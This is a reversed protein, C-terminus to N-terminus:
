SGNALQIITRGSPPLAATREQNRVAITKAAKDNNSNKNKNNHQIWGSSHDSSSRVGLADGQKAGLATRPLSTLTLTLLM